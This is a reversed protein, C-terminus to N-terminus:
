VYLLLRLNGNAADSNVKLSCGLAHVTVVIPKKIIAVSGNANVLFEAPSVLAEQKIAPAECGTYTGVLTIEKATMAKGNSAIGHASFHKCSIELEPTAKFVQANRALVLVLGPLPGTWLFYSNPGGGALASGASVAGLVVLAVLTLLGTATSKRIMQISNRRQKITM